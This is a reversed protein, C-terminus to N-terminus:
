VPTTHCCLLQTCGLDAHGCIHLEKTSIMKIVYMNDVDYRIWVKLRLKILVIYNINPLFMHELECLYKARKQLLM